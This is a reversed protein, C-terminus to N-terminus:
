AQPTEAAFNNSKVAPVLTGPRLLEFTPAQSHSPDSKPDPALQAPVKAYKIILKSTFLDCYAFM